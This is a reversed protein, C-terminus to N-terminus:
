PLTAASCQRGETPIATAAICRSTPVRETTVSDKDGREEARQKNKCAHLIPANASGHPPTGGVDNARETQSQRASVQMGEHRDFDGICQHQEAVSQGPCASPSEVAALDKRQHDDEGAEYPQEGAANRCEFRGGIQASHHEGCHRRHQRSCRGFFEPAAPCLRQEGPPGRDDHKKRIRRMGALEKEGRKSVPETSSPSENASMAKPVSNNVTTM